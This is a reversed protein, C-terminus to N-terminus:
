LFPLTRRALLGGGYSTTASVSCVLDFKVLEGAQALPLTVESHLGDEDFYSPSGVTGSVVEEIM